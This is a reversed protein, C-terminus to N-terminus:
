LQRTAQEIDAILDERNELGASVRLMGDTIGSALKEEPQLKAHTTTAPHTITTRTDGLNPTISMLALADVFRKARAAGGKLEFSVLGGGLRMQKKALQHQPHSPLFPYRVWLVDEHQELYRAIALANECHREMRIALTELSKSLIWATHPSM